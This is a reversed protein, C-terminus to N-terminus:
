AHARDKVNAINLIAQECGVLIPRLIAEPPLLGKALYAAHLERIETVVDRVALILETEMRVDARRHLASRVLYDSVSLGRIAAQEVITKKEDETGYAKLLEKRKKKEDVERFLKAM